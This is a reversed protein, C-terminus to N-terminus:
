NTTSVATWIFVLAVEDRGCVHSYREKGPRTSRRGFLTGQGCISYPAGSRKKKKSLVAGIATASVDCTVLATPKSLFPCSDVSVYHTAQTSSLCIPVREVVGM